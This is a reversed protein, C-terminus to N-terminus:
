IHFRCEVGFNMSLRDTYKLMRPLKIKKIDNYQSNQLLNTFVKEDQFYNEDLHNNLFEKKLLDINVFPTGDSTSGGQNSITTLSNLIKNVNNIKNFKSFLFNNIFNNINKKRFEDLLFYYNYEYGGFQEDGGHGELIVNINKNKITEYNKM